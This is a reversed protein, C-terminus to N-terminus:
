WRSTRAGAPCGAPPSWAGGGNGGPGALVVVRRGRPDGGLFRVRTLQALDRGASEMMQALGIGLDDIMIRDVEIMQATTLWPLSAPARPFTEGNVARPQIRGSRVIHAKAALDGQRFVYTEGAVRREDFEHHHEQDDSTKTPSGRTGRDGNRGSSRRKAARM